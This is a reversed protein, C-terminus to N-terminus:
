VQDVCNRWTAPEVFQSYQVCSVAFYLVAASVPDVTHHQPTSEVFTWCKNVLSLSLRSLRRRKNSAIVVRQRSSLSDISNVLLFDLLDCVGLNSLIDCSVTFTSDPAQVQDHCLRRPTSEVFQRVCSHAFTSAAASMRNVFSAVTDVRCVTLVTWLLRHFDFRSGVNPPRMVGRHRSSLHIITNVLLQSLQPPRRRKFSRQRSLLYDIIIM